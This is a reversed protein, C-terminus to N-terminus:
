RLYIMKKTQTFDDSILSYFYIGSSLNFKSADLNIMYNGATKIEDILIAVEEGKIDYVIMKVYSEKPITYNILTTPNFPNPYNQSLDFQTPFSEDSISVVVFSTDGYAIGDIYCGRLWSTLGLYNEESLEGFDDCFYKYYDLPVHPNNSYYHIRKITRWSGFQYGEFVDVVESWSTDVVTSDEHYSIWYIWKDGLLANYKYYKSEILVTDSPNEYITLIEDFGNGKKRRFSKTIDKTRLNMQGFQSILKSTGKFEYYLLSDFFTCTDIIIHKEEIYERNYIWFNGISLKYQAYSSSLFLLSMTTLILTFNLNKM